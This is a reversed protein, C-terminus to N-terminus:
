KMDSLAIHATIAFSLKGADMPQTAKREKNPRNNTGCGHCRWKDGSYSIKPWIFWTNETLIHDECRAMM